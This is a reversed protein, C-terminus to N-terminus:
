NPSLDVSKIALIHAMTRVTTLTQTHWNCPSPKLEVFKGWIDDFPTRVLLLM